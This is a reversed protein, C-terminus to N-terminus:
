PTVMTLTAGRIGSAIMVAEAVVRRSPYDIDDLVWRLNVSQDGALSEIILLLSREGRSLSSEISPHVILTRGGGSLERLEIGPGRGMPTKGLLHLIALGAHDRVNFHVIM